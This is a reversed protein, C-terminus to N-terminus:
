TKHEGFMKTLNDMKTDISIDLYRRLTNQDKIGTIDMITKIDVGKAHAL